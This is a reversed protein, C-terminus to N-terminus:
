KGAKQKLKRYIADDNRQGVVRVVVTHQADDVEYYIRYERSDVRYGEGISKSDPPRPDLQLSLIKLLLQRGVKIPYQKPNTLDKLVELDVLISYM